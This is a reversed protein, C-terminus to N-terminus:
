KCLYTLLYTIEPQFYCAVFNYKLNANSEAPLLYHLFMRCSICIVLHKYHSATFTQNCKVANKFIILSSNNIEELPFIMFINQSFSVKRWIVHLGKNGNWTCHKWTKRRKGSLYTNMPFWRSAQTNPPTSGVLAVATMTSIDRTAASSTRSPWDFGNNSCVCHVCVCVCTRVCARVCACV